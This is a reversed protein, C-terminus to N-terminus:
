VGVTVRRAAKHQRNSPTRPGRTAAETFAARVPRQPRGTGATSPHKPHPRGSTVRPARVPSKGGEHGDDKSSYRPITSPGTPWAAKAAHLTAGPCQPRPSRSRADKRPNAPGHNNSGREHGSNGDHKGQQRPGARAQRKPAAAPRTTVKTRARARPPGHFDRPPGPAFAGDTRPM